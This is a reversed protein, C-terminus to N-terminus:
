LFLFTVLSAVVCAIALVANLGSGVKYYETEEMIYQMQEEETVTIEPVENEKALRAEKEEQKRKREADKDEKEKKNKESESSLINYGTSIPNIIDFRKTTDEYPHFGYSNGALNKLIYENCKYDKENITVILIPMGNEDYERRYLNGARIYSLFATAYLVNAASKENDKTIDLLNVTNFVLEKTM